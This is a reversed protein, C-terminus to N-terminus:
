HFKDANSILPLIVYITLALALFLLPLGIKSSM